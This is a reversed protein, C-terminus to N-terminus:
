DVNERVLSFFIEEIDDMGNEQRLEALTGLALLKGEHIVGLRDCLKEAENMIHTSLIVSKKEERCLKIFELVTKGVMIDLNATPEDFILVSPNHVIARAISVKQKMGTSLKSNLTHAFKRMDFLDYIEECRQRIKKREMGYLRGFYTITEEPTLRDYIRTSGSIFGINQRVKQANEVVDFGLVSVQGSTPQLVTSLVRLTTTKGAGNPGLLGFIEGQSCSFSVDDVAKIRITDKKGQSADDIFIKTLNKVEIM